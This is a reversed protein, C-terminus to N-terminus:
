APALLLQQLVELLRDFDIPKSLIGSVGLAELQQGREDLVDGSLILVPLDGLRDDSRLRRLVELGDMRPMMLDLLVMAPRQQSLMELAEPGDSASVVDFGSLELLHCMPLRTTEDDEVLLLRPRGPAPSDGERDADDAFCPSRPPGPLPTVPFLADFRSGRGPHSVVDIRGGAAEVLRRCIALGLGTGKSRDREPNRLQAFEDFIQGIQADPIGPGTDEVRLVLRGDSPLVATVRVSGSDTFKIANGVLNTLVRGLKVRDARIWSCPGDLEWSFELGKQRAALAMPGLSSDLWDQIPFDVPHQVLEGSDFTTLDLLDSVLEALNGSARRLYGSLRALEDDRPLDDLRRSLAEALLNLANVPTRLDHSIASLFRSKNRASREAADRAMQMADATRKRATVDVILALAGIPERSSTMLPEFRWELYRTSEEGSEEPWPVNNQAHPEQQLACRRVADRLSPSDAFLEEATAGIIRSRSRGLIRWAPGNCARCRCDPDFYAVGVPLHDLLAKLQAARTSLDSQLESRDTIDQYTSIAGGDPGPFPCSIVEVIRVKGDPRRIRITERVEERHELARRLPQREVPIPESHADLTPVLRFFDELSMPAPDSLGLLARGAPNILSVSPDSGTILVVGIPILEVITQFRRHEEEADVRAALEGLLLQVDNLSGSIISSVGLLGDLLEESPDSRMGVVLIGHREGALALPLAILARLGYREVWARDFRDDRGLDEVLFHMGSRSVERVEPPLSEDDIPPEDGLRIGRGPGGSAAIRYRGSERDLLWVRALSAQFDEIATEVATALVLELSPRTGLRDTIRATMRLYDLLAGRGRDTRLADVPRITLVTWEEGSEGPFSGLSYEVRISSGDPRLLRARDWSPQGGVGWHVPDGLRHLLEGSHLGILSSGPRGSLREARRNVQMIRGALDTVIVADAM